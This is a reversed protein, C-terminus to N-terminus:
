GEFLGHGWYRSADPVGRPCAFLASGVHRIYENLADQSGLKRQLTIFQAPDKQFSIFFLGADLTGTREDIGDTFSYGRRLIRLGNNNEFAALRIHADDPITLEGDATRAAFNPADFETKGTLPAGTYKARGFVAEQDSLRDRDWTEVFMRIRRAVLYSGGRMWEQGAEAGVWVHQDLATSDDSRINRTGDKFGMLNRPTQQAAGTSSTRGFGLQTWRSVVTGRGLRALNRVAHFAVQPDNACAQIGIDGGSRAPDLIEGPLPPLEALAAPRRPALGFREDFLSPGFGVTVTLQTPPLGVAEGTDAPPMQDAHSDGPVMAGVSMAAAAATWTMLMKQLDERRTTTVDFAAFALRDQIDTTIGAQHAGYFAVTQEPTAAPKTACAALGVGAANVIGLGAVGGLLRRRSLRGTLAPDM